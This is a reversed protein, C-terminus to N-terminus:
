YGGGGGGSSSPAAGSPTIEHWVGGFANIGNGSAQGPSTDATYTYLPHGDYTAQMTGDARKITGVTGTVGSGATVPGTVPPWIQACSGNCNSKSSTDPAFTYVTFGKANTLATTGNITASKLSSGSSSGAAPSATSSTTASAGSTSSTSSSCAAVALAATVVAALAAWRIRRRHGFNINNPEQM